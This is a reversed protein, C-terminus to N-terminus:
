AQDLAASRLSREFDGNAVFACFEDIDAFVRASLCQIVWNHNMPSIAFIPRGARYAEWMELATGMSAQPVYAIVADARGAAQALNILTRRAEARDYNVSDPHLEFPDVVEVGPLHQRLCAGILRRYDQTDITNERRSGQMIGGIFIRWGRDAGGVVPPFLRIRDGDHLVTELGAVEDNLFVAHVRQPPIGFHELTHRVVAAENLTIEFLDTQAGAPRYDRLIGHLKVAVKM